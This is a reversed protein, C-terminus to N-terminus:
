LRLSRVMWQVSVRKEIMPRVKAINATLMPSTGDTTPRPYEELDSPLRLNSASLLVGCAPNRCRFDTFRRSLTLCRDLPENGIRSPVLGGYILLEASAILLDADAARGDIWAWLADVDAPRRRDGLLSCPPTAVTVGAARALALFAGRTVPRADLPLFALNM